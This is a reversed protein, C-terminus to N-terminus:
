IKIYLNKKEAWLIFIYDDLHGGHTQHTYPMCCYKQDIVLVILIFWQGYKYVSYSKTDQSSRRFLIAVTTIMAVIGASILGNMLGGSATLNFGAQVLGAIERWLSISSIVVIFGAILKGTM